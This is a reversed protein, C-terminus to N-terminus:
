RMSNSSSFLAPLPALDTTTESTTADSTDFTGTGSKNLLYWDQGLGGTLRDRSADDFV